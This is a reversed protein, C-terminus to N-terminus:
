ACADLVLRPTKRKKRETRFIGAAFNPSTLVKSWAACFLVLKVVCCGTVHVPREGFLVGLPYTHRIGANLAITVM